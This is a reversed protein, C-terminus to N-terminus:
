HDTDVMGLHLKIKKIDRRIEPLKELSMVIRLQEKDTTAPAGLMRQDPPVDKHIGAKAGVQSRDGIHVHGAIGVQGAIVVYDGTSVSGAMGMQSVYMNHRGIQCNHGVMVLNDIKTGDGVRTPGFTGRDITTCAGIEVDDAIEVNGLQPVKIHRGQVLRYGFGDAGVVANAHIIVRKGVTCRDYLVVHPYLTTNEGVRCHNGLVVGAHLQCGSEVVCGEGISVFPGIAVDAAIQASKAVYASPHIGRFEPAAQPHLKQVVTIFATLPDKVKILTKGNVPANLPVLAASAACKYMKALHREDEFFTIDGDRADTVPRASQIRLDGDGVLEGQVLEALERMTVFV